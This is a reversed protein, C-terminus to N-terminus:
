NHDPMILINNKDIGLEVAINMHEYDHILYNKTM